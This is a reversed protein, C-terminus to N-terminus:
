HKMPWNSLEWCNTNTEMMRMRIVEVTRMHTEEMWMKRFGRPPYSLHASKKLIYFYHRHREVELHCMLQETGTQTVWHRVREERQSYYYYCHVGTVEAIQYYNAKLVHM